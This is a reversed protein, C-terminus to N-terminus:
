KKGLYFYKNMSRHASLLSKTRDREYVTARRPKFGAVITIRRSYTTTEKPRSSNNFFSIM